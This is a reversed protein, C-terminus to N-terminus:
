RDWMNLHEMMREDYVLGTKTAVSPSPGAQKTNEENATERLVSNEALQIGEACSVLLPINM